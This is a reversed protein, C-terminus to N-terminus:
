ITIIFYWAIGLMVFTIYWGINDKMKKKRRLRGLTM